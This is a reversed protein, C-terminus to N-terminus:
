KVRQFVKVLKMDNLLIVEEIWDYRKYEKEIEKIVMDLNMNSLHIDIIFNHSKDKQNKFQNHITTNITNSKPEKIEWSKKSTTEIFDATKINPPKLVRPLMKVNIKKTKAFWSAINKESQTHDFILLANKSNYKDNNQDIFYKQNTCTGKETGLNKLWKETIDYYNQKIEEKIM